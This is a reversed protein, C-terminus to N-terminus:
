IAFLVGSYSITKVSAALLVAWIYSASLNQAKREAQREALPPKTELDGDKKTETGARQANKTPRRRRQVAGAWVGARGVWPM